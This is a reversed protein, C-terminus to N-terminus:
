VTRLTQRIVESIVDIEEESTVVFRLCRSDETVFNSYSLNCLNVGEFLEINCQNECKGCGVCQFDNINDNISQPLTTRKSILVKAIEYSLPLRIDLCDISIGFKCITKKNHKFSVTRNPFVYPNFSLNAILKFENQLVAELRKWRESTSGLTNIISEQLPDINLKGTLITLM